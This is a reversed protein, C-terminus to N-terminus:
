VRPRETSTIQRPVDLTNAELDKAPRLGKEVWGAASRRLRRLLTNERWM